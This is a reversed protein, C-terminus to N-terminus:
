KSGQLDIADALAKISRAIELQAVANLVNSM